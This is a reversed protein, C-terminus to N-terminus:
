EFSQVYLYLAQMGSPSVASRGFIHSNGLGGGTRLLNDFEEATLSIDTLAKGKETVGEGAMGHCDGCKNKTYTAEGRTLDPSLTTTQTSANTTTLNITTTMVSQEGVATFQGSPMTPAASVGSAAQSSPAADTQSRGCAAALLLLLAVFLFLCLRRFNNPVYSM